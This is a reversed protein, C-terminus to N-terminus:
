RVIDKLPVRGVRREGQIKFSEKFEPRFEDKNLLWNLFLAIAMAIFAGSFAAGMDKAADFVDGQTGLFLQGAESSAISLAAWELIEYIASFSVVVDLPFYYGWFGRAGTVRLFVERIPYAMLFGFCFHVLRDYVNRETGFLEGLTFGFPVEGYTWHSGVVHLILFLTIFTFSVDSLKFYRIAILLIPIFLVVLINELLWAERDLPNIATAVWVAAFIASLLMQYRSM